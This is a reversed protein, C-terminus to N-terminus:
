AKCHKSTLIEKQIMEHIWVKILPQRSIGMNTAIADIVEVVKEPLDINIKKINPKVVKGKTLIVSSIDMNQLVNDMENTNKFRLTTPEKKKM